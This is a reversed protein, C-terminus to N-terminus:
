LLNEIKEKTTNGYIGTKVFIMIGEIKGTLLLIKLLM